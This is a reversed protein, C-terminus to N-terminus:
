QRDEVRRWPYKRENYGNSENQDYLDIIVNYVSKLVADPVYDSDFFRYDKIFRDKTYSKRGEELLWYYALTELLDTFIDRDIIISTKLKNIFGKIEEVRGEELVKENTIVYAQLVKEIGKMVM